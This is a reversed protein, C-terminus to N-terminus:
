KTEKFTPCPQPRYGQSYIVPDRDWRDPHRLSIQPTRAHMPNTYARLTAPWGPVPPPAGSGPGTADPATSMDPSSEPDSPSPTGSSLTLVNIHAWTTPTWGIM